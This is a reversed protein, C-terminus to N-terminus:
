LCTILKIPKLFSLSKLEPSPKLFFIEWIKKTGPFKALAPLSLDKLDKYELYRRKCLLEQSWHTNEVAERSQVPQLSRFSVDNVKRCDKLVRILM